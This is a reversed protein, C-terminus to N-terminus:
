RRFQHHVPHTSISWPFCTKERSCRPMYVFTVEQRPSVARSRMWQRSCARIPFFSRCVFRLQAEDPLQWLDLHCFMLKSIVIGPTILGSRTILALVHQTFVAALCLPNVYSGLKGQPGTSVNTQWYVPDWSLSPHTIGIIM